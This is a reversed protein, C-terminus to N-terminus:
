YEDNVYENFKEKIFLQTVGLLSIQSNSSFIFPFVFSNCILKKKDSGGTKFVMKFM